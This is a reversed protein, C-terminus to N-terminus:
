QGGVRDGNQGLLAFRQFTQDSGMRCRLLEGQAGVDDHSRGIAHAHTRACALEADPGLRDPIPALAPPLRRVPLRDGLLQGIHLARSRRRRERGLLDASQDRHCALLRRLALPGDAM